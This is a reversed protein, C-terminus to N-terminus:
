RQSFARTDAAVIIGKEKHLLMVNLGSKFIRQALQLVEAEELNEFEQNHSYGAKTLLHEGEGAWLIVVTKEIM